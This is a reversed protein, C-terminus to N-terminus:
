RKLDRLVQKDYKRMNAQLKFKNEAADEGILQNVVDLASDANELNGTTTSPPLAFAPLKGRATEFADETIEVAHFLDHTEYAFTVLVIPNQARGAAIAEAKARKWIRTFNTDNKRQQTISGSTRSTTGVEIKGIKPGLFVHVRAPIRHKDDEVDYEKTYVLHFIDEDKFPMIFFTSPPPRANIRRVIKYSVPQGKASFVVHKLVVDRKGYHLCSIVWHRETRKLDKEALYYVGDPKGSSEITDEAKPM